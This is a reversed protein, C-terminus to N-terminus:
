RFPSRVPADETSLWQLPPHIITNMYHSCIPHIDHVPTASSRGEFHQPRPSMLQCGSQRRQVGKLPIIRDGLPIIEVDFNEKVM